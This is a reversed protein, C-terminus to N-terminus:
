IPYKEKLSNWDIMIPVGPLKNKLIDKAQKYAEEEISYLIRNHNELNYWEYGEFANWSKCRAKVESTKKWRHYFRKREMVDIKIISGFLDPTLVTISVIFKIM